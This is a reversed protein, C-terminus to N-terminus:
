TNTRGKKRKPSKSEPPPAYQEVIPWADKIAARLLLSGADNRSKGLRAAIEGLQLFLEDELRFQIPTRHPIIRREFGEMVIYVEREVWSSLQPGNAFLDDEREQESREEDEDHERGKVVM